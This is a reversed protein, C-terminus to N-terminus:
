FFNCIFKDKNSNHKFGLPKRYLHLTGFHSFYVFIDISLKIKNQFTKYSLRYVASM